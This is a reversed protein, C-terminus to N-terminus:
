EINKKSNEKQNEYEQYDCPIGKDRCSKVYAAWKKAETVDIPNRLFADKWPQIFDHFDHKNTIFYIADAIVEREWGEEELPTDGMQSYIDAVARLMKGFEKYTALNRPEKNM